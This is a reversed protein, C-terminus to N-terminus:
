QIVKKFIFTQIVMFLGSVAWYLPLAAPVVFSIVGIMIPSIYLILKMPGQSQSEDLGIMSVKAQAYYVIIAIIAMVINVEGLNFWLFSQEAIEPTRRIAYYFGILIPMQLLMPLCGLLMKGPNFDHKQYLDMMEKQMSAQSESDKKDRYKEQLADMEPKMVKMVKQSQKSQKQQNYLFPSMMLRLILTIMIISVGYSGGLITALGKILQSFPFVILRNFFGSTSEDIPSFDGSCGALILLLGSIVIYKWPKTLIKNKKEM